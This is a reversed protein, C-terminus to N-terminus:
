KKDNGQWSMKSRLDAGVKEVQLESEAKRRPEFSPRGAANEALWKKAFSGDQIESLVKKMEQKTADTIIRDGTCYDGYEATDSISYRMYSLGGKNVMDIILKMEHICEFYASEPQYGAEVLTEFGAKMLATVGGCLVAQEGFLDTETEEKFTTELIGARGAGIGWAYSLAMDKAQGSADQHVAILSPVGKGEVFQSRVTHGPGKPAIMIVDIDSPPLIQQFHINFGHAFCLVMGTRLNPGIKEAYLKAAKEDNVLVMVLDAKQVAEATDYVTFGDKKAQEASQSGAYLGIVVDVGNDRLNQAHAHGQSGYGIIAVKKSRILEPKCDKDYFMKAM